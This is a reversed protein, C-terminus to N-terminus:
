ELIFSIGKLPQMNKPQLNLPALTMKVEFTRAEIKNNNIIPFQSPPTGELPM